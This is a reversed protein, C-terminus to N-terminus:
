KLEKNLRYVALLHEFKEYHRDLLASGFVQWEFGEDETRGIRLIGASNVEYDHFELLNRYASLQTVHEPWLAKSTKIDLLMLDGDVKGYFDITGGFDPCVLPQEILIPEATHRAQWNWFSILANEARDVDAPSYESTDPETDRWECEVYFHALTGINALADVYKSSDIGQLGLNNAWKILAPKAEVGLITTVGPVRKGEYEYRIHAKGKKTELKM